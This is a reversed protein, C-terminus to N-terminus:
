KSGLEDYWIELVRDMFDPTKEEYFAPILTHKLMQEKPTEKVKLDTIVSKLQTFYDISKQLYEMDVVKGHGPVFKKVDMKSWQKMLDIGLYARYLMCGSNDAHESNLNDGTLMTKSSRDYLYASCPSHGGCVVFDIEHESKQDSIVISDKVLIQPKFWRSQIENPVYDELWGPKLDHGNKQIRNTIEELRSKRGEQTHFGLEYMEAYEINSAEAVIAPVDEFAAMGLFHDGHSHTLVLMKAQLNYKEEMKQRFKTANDACRGADVFILGDNMAICVINGENFPTGVFRHLTIRENIETIESKGSM